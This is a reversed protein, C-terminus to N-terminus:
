HDPWDDAIRRVDRTSMTCRKGDPGLVRVFAERDDVLVVVGTYLQGAVLWPADPPPVVGERLMITVVLEYSRSEM